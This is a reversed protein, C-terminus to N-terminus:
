SLLTREDSNALLPTPRILQCGRMATPKITAATVVQERRRGPPTRCEDRRRASDTRRSREVGSRLQLRDELVLPALDLRSSFSDPHLPSGLSRAAATALPAAVSFLRGLPVWKSHINRRLPPVGLEQAVLAPPRRAGRRRAGEVDLRLSAARVERHRLRAAVQGQQARLRQRAAPEAAGGRGAGGGGAAAGGAVAAPGAAEAGGGGGAGSRRRRRRRSRRRGGAGGTM